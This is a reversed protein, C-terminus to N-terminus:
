QVPTQANPPTDKSFFTDKYEEFEFVILNDNEEVIEPNDIKSGNDYTIVLHSPYHLTGDGNGGSAAQEDCQCYQHQDM